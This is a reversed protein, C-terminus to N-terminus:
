ASLENDKDPNAFEDISRNFADVILGKLINGKLVVLAAYVISGSYSFARRYCDLYGVERAWSGFLISRSRGFNDENFCFYILANEDNKIFFANIIEIITNKIKKDYGFQFAQHSFDDNRAINISYASHINGEQDILPNKFFTILYKNGSDSTFYYGSEEETLNYHNSL